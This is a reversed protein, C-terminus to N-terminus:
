TTLNEASLCALHLQRLPKTRAGREPILLTALEVRPGPTHDPIKEMKKFVLFLDVM